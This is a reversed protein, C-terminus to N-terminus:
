NLNEFMSPFSEDTQITKNISGIGTALKSIVKKCDDFLKKIEGVNNIKLKM